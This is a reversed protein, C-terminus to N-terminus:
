VGGVGRASGCWRWWFRRLVRGRRRQHLRRGRGWRRGRRRGRCRSPRGTIGSRRLAASGAPCQHVARSCFPRRMTVRFAAMGHSLSRSFVSTCIAARSHRRVLRPRGRRGIGATPPLTSQSIRRVRRRGATAAAVPMTAATPTPNATSAEESGCLEASLCGGAAIAGGAAGVACGGDCAGFGVGRSVESRGPWGFGEGVPDFAGAPGGTPPSPAGDDDGGCVGGGVTSGAPGGTTASGGGGPLVQLSASIWTPFSTRMQRYARLRGAHHEAPLAENHAPDPTRM